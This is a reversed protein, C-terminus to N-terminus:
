RRKISRDEETGANQNKKNLSKKLAVANQITMVSELTSCYRYCHFKYQHVLMRYRACGQVERQDKCHTDRKKAREERNGIRARIEQDVGM